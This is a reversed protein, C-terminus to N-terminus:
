PPHFPLMWILLHGFILNSFIPIHEEKLFVNWEIRM